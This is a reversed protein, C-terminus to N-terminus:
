RARFKSELNADYYDDRNIIGRDLAQQMAANYRQDLDELAARIGSVPIQGTLIQGIIAVRDAGEPALMNHFNPPMTVVNPAIQGYTNWQPRSPAAAKSVIDTRNPMNKGNTFMLSQAEDGWLIRMVHGVKALKDKDNRVSANVFGTGGASLAVAYRNNPDQVPQPFFDWGMPDAPAGEQGGGFPFQDYLVGVNWGAGIIFGINGAAFQARNQDDNLSEMGPFLAGADRIRGLMEFFPAFDAFQYKFQSYNFYLHGVSSAAWYETVWTTYDPTWGLPIGYGYIKGPELKSIAIAQEEFEAWSKPPASYGARQVLSKNYQLAAHNGYLSVTYPTGKYTTSMNIHYAAQNNLLDDIHPIESWPLYRGQEVQSQLSLGPPGKFVDPARNTDLALVIAQAWDAGYVTYEVNIGLQRGLGTNFKEVLQDCELKNHADNTWYTFNTVTPVGGSSSPAQRGGGAMVAMSIGLLLVLSITFIKGIKM